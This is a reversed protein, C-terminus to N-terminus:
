AGRAGTSVGESAPELLVGARRAARRRRARRAPLQVVQCADSRVGLEHHEHELVGAQQGDAEGVEDPHPRGLRQGGPTAKQAARPAPVYRQGRLWGRLRVSLQQGGALLVEV